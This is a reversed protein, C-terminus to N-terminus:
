RVGRSQPPHDGRLRPLFSDEEEVTLLQQYCFFFVLHQNGCRWFEGLAVYRCDLLEQFWSLDTGDVRRKRFLRRRRVVRESSSRDGAGDGQLVSARLEGSLQDFAEFSTEYIWGEADCQPLSRDIEWEQTVWLHPKNLLRAPVVENISHGLIGRNCSYFAAILGAVEFTVPTWVPNNGGRFVMRQNEWVVERAIVPTPGSGDAAQRPSGMSSKGIPTNPTSGSSSTSDNEEDQTDEAAAAAVPASGSTADDLPSYTSPHDFELSRLRTIKETHM